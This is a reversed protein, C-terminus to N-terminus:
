RGGPRVDSDGRAAPSTGTNAAGRNAPGASGTAAGAAALERAPRANRTGLTMSGLRRGASKVQRPSLREPDPWRVDYVWGLKEFWWIVRASPDVQGRLAGHRACTPDAHHLNHWSEGFSAIALWSVNRSKDRVEFSEEGFTHCISNISWTVHHLLSV